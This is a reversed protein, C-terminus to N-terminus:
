GSRPSRGLRPGTLARAIAQTTEIPHILSSCGAKEIWVDLVRRLKCASGAHGPHGSARLPPDNDRPFLARPLRNRERREGLSASASLNLLVQPTCSKSLLAARLLGLFSDPQSAFTSSSKEPSPPRSSARWSAVLGAASRPPPVLAALRCLFEVPEIVLVTQGSAAPRKMRYALRGDPLVLSARSEGRPM